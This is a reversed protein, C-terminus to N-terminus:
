QLGFRKICRWLTSRSIGLSRAAASRNWRHQALAALIREAEPPMSKEFSSVESPSPKATTAEQLAEIVDRETLLAGSANLVARELVHRLERVNGPWAHARLAAIAEAPIGVLSRAGSRAAIGPLLHTVLAEIDEPRERLPPIECHAGCLRYYLDRRFRGCSVDDRLDRNTAAIIRVDVQKASTEGIPRVEGSDLCRLLRAQFAQPLDGIEDLFL